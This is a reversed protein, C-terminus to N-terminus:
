SILKTGAFADTAFSLYHLRLRVYTKLIQIDSEDLASCMLKSSRLPCALEGVIKEEKEDTV